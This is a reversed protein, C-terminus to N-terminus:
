STILLSSSREPAGRRRAKMRVYPAVYQSRHAFTGPQADAKAHCPEVLDEIVFGARIGQDFSGAQRQVFAIGCQFLLVQQVAGSSLRLCRIEAPFRHKAHMIQRFFLGQAPILPDERRLAKEQVNEHIPARPLPNEQIIM